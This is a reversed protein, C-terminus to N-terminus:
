SKKAFTAQSPTFDSIESQVYGILLFLLSIARKGFRKVDANGSGWLSLFVRKKVIEGFGKFAKHFLYENVKLGIIANAMNNQKRPKGDQKYFKLRKPFCVINCFSLIKHSWETSFDMRTIIVAGQITGRSDILKKVFDKM